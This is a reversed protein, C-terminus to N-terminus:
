LLHNHFPSESYYRPNTSRGHYYEASKYQERKKLLVVANIHHHSCIALIYIHIRKIRVGLLKQCLSLCM